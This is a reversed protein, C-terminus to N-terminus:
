RGLFGERLKLLALVAQAAGGGKGGGEQSAEARERAQDRNEVTLVGNGILLGREVGLYTIGRASENAVLEFHYTEGRVVCGLAVYACFRGSGEGLRIAAPIELAGPVSVVECTYGAQAIAKEAGAVLADSIDDYFRADVILIHRKRPM